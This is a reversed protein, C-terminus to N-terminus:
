YGFSFRRVLPLWERYVALSDPMEDIGALRGCLAEVDDDERYRDLLARWSTLGSGAAGIRTFLGEAAEGEGAHVALLVLVAHAGHGEVFRDLEPGSLRARLLRYLNILRKTARPSPVLPALSGLFGMEADTIELQRPRVDPSAAREVPEAPPEVPAAVHEANQQPIQEASQSVATTAARGTGALTRILDGFGTHDMPSLQFPVQFIKELYNSPSVKMAAYHREIAQRLWRADVGVVVVFVPLAVLLHIAELVKVVVEPACRDLDDIYLVIRELGGDAQREKDLIVAFTELDRRLLSVVGLHQRYDESAKRSQAFATADHGPALETVARELRSTEADLDALRKGTAAQKTQAADSIRRTAERVKTLAPAVAAVVGSVMTVVAPWLPSNLLVVTGVALVVGTGLLVWALQSRRFFALAQRAKTRFGLAGVAFRRVDEVTAEDVDLVKGVWALDDRTLDIRFPEREFQAAVMMRELRAASLQTLMSKEQQRLAALEDARRRLEDESGESSLNDFIHAALSAWLNAEAYHWANFTIQRVASCYSSVERGHEGRIKEEEAAAGALTHVRKRMQRMFFSKGSGWNGFLGISLPPKILRSAVLDALMEVDPTIGLQDVGADTDAHYGALHRVVPSAAVAEAEPMDIQIVRHGKSSLDDRLAPLNPDLHNAVGVAERKGAGTLFADLRGTRLADLMTRPSNFWWTLDLSPQPGSPDLVTRRRIRRM